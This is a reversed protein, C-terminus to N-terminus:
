NTSTLQMRQLEQERLKKRHIKGAPTKPLETVYEIHRPYEHQSLRFRVADQIEQTLEDNGVGKPVIFAKIVQGRLSDPVGIAAAELVSAHKLMADEVEVASITWGASIIVDDARGGHYFYGDEDTHGLDKTAIWEGRRKVKMEGVVGPPCRQGNADQVEVLGGPIPKGLSGPKVKFDKSGPYSVLIVGIETTGYMSCVSAQFLDEIFEETASDIPEGTFSLKNISYRYQTAEPANRIMRYHTAAASMNTFGHESLAQVLRAASFKGSFAGITLGLALPALTGHWLGHGWAPSSPCFYRDGPRLGTGYLAAVMLTVLAKHSHRIADPLERTTGSTYQFIALDSAATRPTFHPEYESLKELFPTDVVQTQLGAIGQTHGAKDAHTLLIRPTCDEVRLRIGDPGFLTFMPVAIAGTKIIGFLAAYFSRSPELMVAVRDGPQIGQEVLFNAFRSSEQSIDHYTLIEEHGDAHVVIIAVRTKDTAHRDICEHAINLATPTGDFLDWLKDPHWQEQADAYSTFSTLKKM